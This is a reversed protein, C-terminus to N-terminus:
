EAILTQGVRYEGPSVALLGDPVRSFLFLVTSGILFAGFREGRGILVEREVSRTEQGRVTPYAWDEFEVLIRGVNFAGVMILACTGYEASECLTVVRRNRNFLYQVRKRTHEEVPWLDGEIYRSAIIKLDCPAHVRHYHRPSLYLELCAGSMFPKAWDKSGVLSELTFLSQKTQIQTSPEFLSYGRCVGDVPSVFGEGVPRIGQRLKRCFFESFTSYERLPKECESLDVQFWWVFIRIAIHHLCTPLAIESAFGALRSLFVRPLFRLIHFALPM